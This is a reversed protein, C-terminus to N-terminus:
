QGIKKEYGGTFCQIVLLKGGLTIAVSFANPVIRKANYFSNTM